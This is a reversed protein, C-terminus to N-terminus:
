INLPRGIAGVTWGMKRLEEINLVRRGDYILKNRCLHFVEKMFLHNYNSHATVLVVIDIDELTELNSYISVKEEFPLDVEMENAYPDHIMVNLGAQVLQKTLPEAPTERSDAINPKYSWGLLLANAGITSIGNKTMMETIHQAAKIPMSRNVTRAAGILEAGIGMEEARLM